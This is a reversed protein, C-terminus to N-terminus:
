QIISIPANDQWLSHLFGYLSESLSVKYPTPNLLRLHDPRMAKINSIVNERIKADSLAPRTRHGDWARYHLPMVRSPLVQVRKTEVFPHRCTVTVGAKPEDNLLTMLDLIPMNERDFLRYPIKDGPFTVKEMQESLKIVSRGNIEVLKYVGGLAPQKACVVQQTGLGFGTFEHGQQKLSLLIEEDIDNSGMIIQENLVKKWAVYDAPLAESIKKMQAKAERSLYALDGSDIRIGVPKYGLELLALGVALFNAVGSKLVDYTDVLALFGGPFAQAYMIFSTLEGENTKLLGLKQCVFDRWDLVRWVFEIESGDPRKIKTSSLDALSQCSSVLSHAHTGKMLIDFLYSALVNSTGDFGGIFSYRSATLGGDRGQARRLGFELLTKDWGAALRMRSACTAALTPYNTLTLSGTELMQAIALPGRVKMTPIRPFCITGEELADIKIRECNVGKLWRFFGKDCGLMKSELWDVKEPTFKFNEVFRLVEELGAYIAYEGGFPCRRFFVDFVAEEEHRGAKWYAYAMTLQYLDTELPDLPDYENLKMM